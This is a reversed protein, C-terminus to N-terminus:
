NAATEMIWNSIGRTLSGLRYRVKQWFSAEEYGDRAVLPSTGVSEGGVFVEITGLEEGADVAPPAEDETVRREVKVGPGSLGAVDREAVLEISEDRRFPVALDAYREDQNVLPRRDFASFGYELLQEAAEFRYVDERAGLVVAIYSEDRGEASAVLSPGAGNSTGTKVGTASAYDFGSGPVILLNTNFVDIQRSQTSITAQASSVTDNFFPYRQAERAIEALDRASSYHGRADIGAPNEFQTNKLGMEDAKQNMQQVFQGVSGGGLHESLAYVADTGSPILTAKLLDRVSVQEGSILGINSYVFGVYTEAQDSVTVQEDLNAGNELTLLAVMIKSTSATPLREDRHKGALFVGTDADVLAWAEAQLRPPQAGQASARGPMFGAVFVLTLSLAVLIVGARSRVM